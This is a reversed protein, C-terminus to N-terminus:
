RHPPDAAARQEGRIILTPFRLRMYAGAPVPEEILAAFDLPAKPAWRVLADQLTPRLGRWAGHGSWYDVFAAAAARNDGSVVAENTKGAIATIKPLRQLVKMALSNSCTSARPNMSRSAPSASLGSTHLMSLSVVAMPIASSICSAILVTSSRFPERPRM